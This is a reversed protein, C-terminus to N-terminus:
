MSATASANCVFIGVLEDVHGLLGAYGIGGLSTPYPADLPEILADPELWAKQSM